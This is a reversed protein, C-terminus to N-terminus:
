LTELCTISIDLIKKAARGNGFPKVNFNPKTKKFTEIREIKNKSNPPVLLNVGMELLETWETEERLTICKKKAFFAEKQLGGSDTIIFEAKELLWFTEFLTFPATLLINETLKEKYKEMIKRTRPHLPFIIKNQEGLQNLFKLITSLKKRNSTNEARHITCFVFDKPAELSFISPTVKFKKYYLFNDYMVDGVLLLKKNDIGESILNKVAINTPCFLLDSCHDTLIRNIEEPMNKNRSRLGAEIHCIKLNLKSAAISGALTTDTDGYLFILHPKFKILVKELSVIMKGTNEGHSGGGINLNIEPYPIGLLSFFSDSMDKDFHQGSHIIIHKIGFSKNKFNEIERSVAALKVFQPRTGVISCIIYNKEPM